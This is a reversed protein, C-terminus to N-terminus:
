GMARRYLHWTAHGLVPLVLALGVLLPVSGLIVLGAVILGWTGMIRPNARVAEVSTAMAEGAGVHRDLILPLSIAGLSFAVAAFAFGVIHGVMVLTWGAPTSLLDGLFGLYSSTGTEPALLAFLGKASVLWLVFLALLALAVRAIAGRAPSQLADFAHRWSTPEGREERRSIEYFGLAAVPGLIAFGSVLPFLLPFADSNTLGFAIALGALPYIFALFVLHTPRRLFDAWGLRLAQTLDTLEIRRIAPVPHAARQGADFPMAKM